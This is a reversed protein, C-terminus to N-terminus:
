NNRSQINEHPILRLAGPILMSVSPNFISIPGSLKPTPPSPPLEASRRQSAVINIQASHLCIALIMREREETILVDPLVFPSYPYFFGRREALYFLLITAKCLQGPKRESDRSSWGGRINKSHTVTLLLM